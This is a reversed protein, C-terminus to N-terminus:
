AISTINIEIITMTNHIMDTLEGHLREETMRSKPGIISLGGHVSGDQHRVSAGIGVLGSITEEHSFAINEERITELEARLADPITNATLAEFEMQQIIEERRDEPLFALISKGVATHYLGERLGVYLETQVANEGEAKYLCVGKGHEEVTYLVLEKSQAALADIEEQVIDAVEVRNTVHHAFDIFRLGLRYQTGEKVVFDNQELTSLHCHVTGKSLGLETALETVGMEEHARLATLIDISRQVAHVPNKAEKM